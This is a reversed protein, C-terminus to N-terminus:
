RLNSRPVRPRRLRGRDPRNGNRPRSSGLWPNRRRPSSRRPRRQIRRQRVSPPADFTDWTLGTRSCHSRCSSAEPPWATGPANGGVNRATATPTAGAAYARKSCPSFHAAKPTPAAWIAGIQGACSVRRTPSMARDQRKGTAPGVPLRLANGLAVCRSAIGEGATLGAFGGM